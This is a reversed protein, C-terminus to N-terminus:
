RNRPINVVEKLAVLLNQTQITLYASKGIGNRSIAKIMLTSLKTLHPYMKTIHTM